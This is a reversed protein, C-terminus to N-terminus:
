PEFSDVWVKGIHCAEECVSIHKERALWNTKLKTM